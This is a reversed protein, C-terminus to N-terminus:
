VFRLQRNPQLTAALGHSGRFRGFRLRTHMSNLIADAVFIGAGNQATVDAFPQRMVGQWGRSHAISPVPTDGDVYVGTIIGQPVHHAAIKLCQVEGTESQIEAMVAGINYLAAMLGEKHAMVQGYKGALVLQLDTNRQKLVPSLQHAVDYLMASVSVPELELDLPKTALDLSLMYGDVLRLAMDANLQMGRLAARDVTEEDYFFEAQRAIYMLPMKLQEAIARLLAQHADDTMGFSQTGETQLM